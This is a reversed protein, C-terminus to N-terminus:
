RNREAPTRARRRPHLRACVGSTRRQTDQRYLLRSSFLKRSGPILAVIADDILQV